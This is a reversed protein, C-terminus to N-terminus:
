KMGMSFSCSGSKQVYSKSRYCQLSCIAIAQLLEDNLIEVRNSITLKRQIINKIQPSLIIDQSVFLQQFKLIAASLEDQNIPHTFRKIDPHIKLNSYYSITKLINIEDISFDLFPKSDIDILKIPEKIKGIEFNLALVSPLSFYFFRYIM